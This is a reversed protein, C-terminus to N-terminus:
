VQLLKYILIIIIIIIIIIMIIKNYNKNNYNKNNNNNDTTYTKINLNSFYSTLTKTLLVNDKNNNNKLNTKYIKIFDIFYKTKTIFSSFNNVTQKNLHNLKNIVFVNDKNNYTKTNVVILENNDINNSNFNGKV